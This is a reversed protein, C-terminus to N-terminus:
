SPNDTTQWAEWSISFGLSKKFCHGQSCMIIEQYNFVYLINVDPGMGLYESKNPSPHPKFRSKWSSGPLELTCNSFYSFWQMLLTGQIQENKKFCKFIFDKCLLSTWHFCVCSYAKTPLLQSPLCGPNLNQKSVFETTVKASDGFNELAWNGRDLILIM